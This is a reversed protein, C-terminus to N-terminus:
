LTVLESLQGRLSGPIPMSQAAQGPIFRCCVSTLSGAAIEQQGVCFRFGYTVSSKGLHTVRVEIELQDEFRASGSYQCQM